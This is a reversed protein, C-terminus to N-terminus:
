PLTEIIKSKINLFSGSELLPPINTLKKNNLLRKFASWFVNSSSKPNCLKDSLNKIYAEKASNIFSNTEIQVQRVLVRGGEPKGRGKWRDFVRKNRKIASKVEPTIWPADKDNVTIIKNPINDSMVTLLIDTLTLVMDDVSRGALINNWNVSGITNKISPVDAQDYKWIRRKYPPPSPVSFNITGHIIQHKCKPDPSPIVGSDVFSAPKDTFILDICTEIDDRPFHTPEAILQELCNLLMFNSLKEGPMNEHREESWFLPPDPM